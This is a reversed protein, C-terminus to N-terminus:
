ELFFDVHVIVSYRYEKVIDDKKFISASVTVFLM